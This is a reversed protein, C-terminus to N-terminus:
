SHVLLTKSGIPTSRTSTASETLLFFSQETIIVNSISKFSANGGNIMNVPTNPARKIFSYLHIVLAVTSNM